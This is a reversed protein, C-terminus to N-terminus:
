NGYWSRMPFPGGLRVQYLGKRPRDTVSQWVNALARISLRPEHTTEIHAKEQYINGERVGWWLGVVAELNQTNVLHLSCSEGLRIPLLRAIASVRAVFLRQPSATKATYVLRFAKCDCEEM